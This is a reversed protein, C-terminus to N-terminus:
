HAIPAHICPGISELETLHPHENAFATMLDSMEVYTLYKGPTYVAMNPASPREARSTPDTRRDRRPTLRIIFIAAVVAAHM